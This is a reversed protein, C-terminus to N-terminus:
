DTSKLRDEIIGTAGLLEMNARKRGVTAGLLEMNKDFSCGAVGYKIAMVAIGLLWNCGAVGYKQRLQVWCSWIQAALQV